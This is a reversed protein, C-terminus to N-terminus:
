FRLSGRVNFTTADFDNGGVNGVDNFEHQLLEAGVTYRDTIKYNMGIGYFAGDEDGLSTDARAYGATAYVLTNGLDYGGKLKARAVSDISGGANLDVDTKDYDLEGGLVFQGFDYDYGAHFGYSGNDGDFNGPGDVDAYGLQLGTYFGTWDSGMMPAPAPAAMVPQEVMPESLDGAFAGTAFASSALVAASALKFTTKM